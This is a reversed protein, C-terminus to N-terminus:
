GGPAQVQAAVTTLLGIASSRDVLVCDDHGGDLLIVQANPAQAALATAHGEPVDVDQRGHLIYWPVAVASARGLNAFRNRLLMRWPLWPYLAAVITPLDTFTGETVLAAPHMELALQTAVGGGLSWGYVVVRSAPVGRVTTLFRWAARADQYLAAESPPPQSPAAGYGRFEMAMVNFGAERLLRYRAVNGPSGLLTSSGHFYLVWPAEEPSALESLITFVAGGDSTAFRVSDWPVLSSDPPVVFPSDPDHAGIFFLETERVWVYGVAAIYGVGIVVLLGVM